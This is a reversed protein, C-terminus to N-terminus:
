EEYGFDQPTQLEWIGKGNSSSLDAADQQRVVSVPKRLLKGTVWGTGKWLVTGPM